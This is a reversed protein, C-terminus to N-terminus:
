RCSKGFLRANFSASCARTDLRMSRRYIVNLLSTVLLEFLKGLIIIVITWAFLDESELYIKARYLMDGVTFDPQGIVEAAVGSKFALGAGTRFSATLFPMVSPFYLYRAKKPPSLMFLDAAEILKVDANEIGKSVAEYIIPTVMLASILLSLESSKMFFLAFIIFSAAPVAKIAAMAPSFVARAWSFMQSLAGSVTGTIVGALFGTGIKLFSNLVTKLFDKEPFLEFLRKVAAVPTVLIISKDLLMAGAQWLILWFLIGSILERKRM